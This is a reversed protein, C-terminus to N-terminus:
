GAIPEDVVNFSLCGPPGFEPQGVDTDLYGAKGHRCLVVVGDTLLVALM